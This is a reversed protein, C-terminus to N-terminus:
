DMDIHFWPGVLLELPGLPRVYTVSAECKGRCKCKCKCCCGAALQLQALNHNTNQQFAQDLVARPGHAVIAFLSM